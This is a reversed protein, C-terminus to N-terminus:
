IHSTQSAGRPSMYKMQIAHLLGKLSEYTLQFASYNSRGYVRRYHHIGVEKFSKTNESLKVVMEPLIAAGPETLHIRKILKTRMLRYDCHCDRIPLQLLWKSLKRYISGLIIRDINDQRKLKYGNVVDANTQMQKLVLKRLDNAHYQADGDTYFVWEKTAHLFGHKIVAYGERNDSKNIVVLSPFKKKMELIKDWTHDSSNGGYLAIVELDRTLKKGYKYADHIMRKVTGEDNHFPFFMTLSSLKKDSM